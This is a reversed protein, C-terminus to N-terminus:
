SRRAKRAAQAQRDLRLLREGERALRNMRRTTLAEKVDCGVRFAFAAVLLGGVVIAYARLIEAWWPM